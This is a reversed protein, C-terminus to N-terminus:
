YFKDYKYKKYPKDILYMEGKCTKFLRKYIKYFAYILPFIRLCAISYDSCSPICLCRRRTEEKAYRQYCKITKIFSIRLIIEIDFLIDLVIVIIRVALNIKLIMLFPILLLFLIFIIYSFIVSFKSTRPRYLKRNNVRKELKRQGEWTEYFDLFNNM